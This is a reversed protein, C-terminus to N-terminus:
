VTLNVKSISLSSFRITSKAPAGKSEGGGGGGGSRGWSHNSELRSVWSTLGVQSHWRMDEQSESRLAQTVPVCIGICTTVQSGSNM